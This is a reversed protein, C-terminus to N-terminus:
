LALPSHSFGRELALIQSAQELYLPASSSSDSCGSYCAFNACDNAIMAECVMNNRRFYSRVELEVGRYHLIWEHHLSQGLFLQKCTEISLM